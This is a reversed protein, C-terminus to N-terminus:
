RGFKRRRYTYFLLWLVLIFGIPISFALVQWKAKQEEVKTQNLLRMQVQKNRAALSSENLVLVDVLNLLFETNGFQQGTNRDFGTPLVQGNPLVENKLVDGDAIVAMKTQKSQEFVPQQWDEIPKARHQFLSPFEGEVIVALPINSRTFASSPPPNRLEELSIFVPNGVVGAQESSQLLIESHLKPNNLLEIESVFEFNVPNIKKTILHEDKGSVIPFFTWPFPETQGTDDIVIPIARSQLDRVLNRKIRVGYNFLQDDLNLPYDVAVNKGQWVTRLSDMEMKMMDLAWLTKGGNMIYQDIKFKDTKSFETKPQAIVLLSVSQPISDVEAISLTTSQYFNTALAERFSQVETPKLEDHGQSFAVVPLQNLQLKSIANSFQYELLEISQNIADRGRNGQLLMVPFQKDQYNILAGPFLLHESYGNKTKIRVNTPTLGRKQLELMTKNQEEASLDKLPNEFHIRIQKSNLGKFQQLVDRTAQQLRKLDAPLNENKLFVFVDVPEELDQILQKTEPTLTFRKEETLDLQAFKNSFFSNVAILIVFLVLSYLLLQRKNKM